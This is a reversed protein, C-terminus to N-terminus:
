KPGCLELMIKGGLEEKYMGIVRKNIGIPLPRKDNKDYNSTDFWIEVDNAIDKYFNRSENTTVLKIDRHNIYVSNNMLNVRM